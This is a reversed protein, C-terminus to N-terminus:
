CILIILSEGKEYAHADALELYEIDFPKLFRGPPDLRKVMEVVRKAVLQKGQRNECFYEPKIKKVFSHFRLNGLHKAWRLRARRGCIVDNSTIESVYREYHPNPTHTPTEQPHGVCSDNPLPRVISPNSSQHAVECHVRANKHAYYQHQHHYQHYSETPNPHGYPSYGHRSQSSHYFQSNRSFSHCDLSPIGTIKM